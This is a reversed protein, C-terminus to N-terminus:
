VTVGESEDHVATGDVPRSRDTVGLLHVPNDRAMRTIEDATLGARLLLDIYLKMGEVPTVNTSAGLDSAIVCREIGVTRMSHAVEEKSIGANSTLTQVFCHELYALKSLELRQDLDFGLYPADVHTVVIREAGRGAAAKVVALAEVFPLHGTALVADADRVLDIVEFVEPLLAGRDDFVSYGPENPHRTRGYELAHITPMWIVKCLPLGPIFRLASEVAFPTIGGVSADLCLGGFMEIEPVIKRAIAARDATLSHHSKLVAGGAHADRLSFAYDIDDQVRDRHVDPATHVHMDFTGRILEDAIRSM